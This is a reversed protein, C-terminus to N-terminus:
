ARGLTAPSEGIGSCPQQQISSHRHGGSGGGPSECGSLFALGFAAGIALFGRVLKSKM